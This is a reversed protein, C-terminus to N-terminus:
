FLTYIFPEIGSGAVMVLLGMAGLMLLIPLLCLKENHGLIHLFERELSPRATQSQQEFSSTEQAM